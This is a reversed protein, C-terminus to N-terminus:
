YSYPEIEDDSFPDPPTPLDSAFPEIGPPLDGIAVLLGEGLVAAIRERCVYNHYRAVWEYKAQVRSDGAHMSLKESVVERHRALWWRAQDADDATDVLVDLYSVFTTGESDILLYQRQPAEAGGGYYRELVAREAASAQPSLVVRPSTASRELRVAEVLGPGFAFDADMYHDGFALGGRLFFGRNILALQLRAAMVEAPGITQEIDVPGTLPFAVILSDSFLARAHLIQEDVGAVSRAYELASRLRRLHEVRHTGVAAEETGLVDLFLVGSPVLEPDGNEPHYAAFAFGPDDM